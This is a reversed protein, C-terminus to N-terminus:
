QKYHKHTSLRNLVEAISKIAEDNFVSDEQKNEYGVDHLSIGWKQELYEIHPKALEMTRNLTEDDPIYKPGKIGSLYRSNARAASYKPAFQTLADAILVAPASLAENAKVRKVQSSDGSFGVTYLFDDILDNIILRNSHM